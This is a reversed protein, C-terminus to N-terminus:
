QGSKPSQINGVTKAFPTYFLKKFKWEVDKIARPRAPRLGLRQYLKKIRATEADLCSVDLWKHHAIFHVMKAIARDSFFCLSRKMFSPSPPHEIWNQILVRDIRDFSLAQEIQDRKIAGLAHIRLLTELQKKLWSDNEARQTLHLLTQRLSPKGLETVFKKYHDPTTTFEVDLYLLEDATATALRDDLFDIRESRGIIYRWLEPPDNERLGTIATYSKRIGRRIAEIQSKVIGAWQQALKETPYKVKAGKM